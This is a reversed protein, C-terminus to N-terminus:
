YSQSFVCVRQICGNGGFNLIVKFGSHLFLQLNTLLLLNTLDLKKDSYSSKQNYLDLQYKIGNLRQEWSKRIQLILISNDLDYNHLAHAM